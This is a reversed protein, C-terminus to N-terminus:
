RVAPDRRALAGLGLAAALWGVMVGFTVPGLLGRAVAEGQVTSGAAYAAALVVLAASAFTWWGRGRESGVIQCVAEGAAWLHIAVYSIIIASWSFVVVLGFRDLFFSHLVLTRLASVVPWTQTLVYNPGVTGVTVVYALLMLVGSAIAGLAVHPLGRRRAVQYPLTLALAGFGALLFFSDADATLIHAFALNPGPLVTRIETGRQLLLLFSVVALATFSTFFVLVARSLGELRNRAGTWAGVALLSTIAIGPFLPMAVATTMKQYATLASYAVVTEFIATVGLWPYALLPLRWTFYRALGRDPLRNASRSLLASWLTALTLDILLALGGARGADAILIRPMYFIGTAFTAATTFVVAELPSIRRGHQRIM